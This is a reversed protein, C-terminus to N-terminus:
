CVFIIAFRSSDYKLLIVKIDNDIGGSFVQEATDNFSVATVQYNSSMVSTSQKKRTDWLRVTNDDSGSVMLQPGRRAGLFFLSVIFWEYLFMKLINGHVTNVFTTHGKYKKIRTSTVVDWLGLTHDTSATFLNSGDPTFHMEMVAGTHGTM